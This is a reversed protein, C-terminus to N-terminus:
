DSCAPDLERILVRVLAGQVPLMADSGTSWLFTGPTRKKFSWDCQILVQGLSKM